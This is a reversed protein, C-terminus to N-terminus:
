ELLDNVPRYGPINEPESLNLSYRVDQIRSGFEQEPLKPFAETVDFEVADTPFFNRCIERTESSNLDFGADLLKALFIDKDSTLRSLIKEVMRPISLPGAPDPSYRRVVLTLDKNPPVSLQGTGHIEITLGSHTATAKCEISEEALKFDHQEMSPGTWATMSEGRDILECLVELECLLGIEISPDFGSESRAGAFLHRWRDLHQSVGKIPSKPDTSLYDLVEDIFRSFIELQSSDNLTLRIEPYGNKRLKTLSIASSKYDERVSSFETETAPVCLGFSSSGDLFATAYHHPTVKVGTTVQIEHGGTREETALRNFLHLSRGNNSSM